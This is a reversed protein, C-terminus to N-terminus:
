RLLPHISKKWYSNLRKTPDTETWIQPPKGGLLRERAAEQKSLVKDPISKNMDPNRERKEEISIKPKSPTNRTVLAKTTDNTAQSKKYKRYSEKVNIKKMENPNYLVTEVDYADSPDVIKRNRTATKIVRQKVLTAMSGIETKIKTDLDAKAKEAEEGEDKIEAKAKELSEVKAKQAIEEDTRINTPDVHVEKPPAAQAEEPPDGFKKTWGETLDELLRSERGADHERNDADARAATTKLLVDFVGDNKTGYFHMNAKLPGDESTTLLVNLEKAGATTLNSQSNWYNAPIKGLLIKATKTAIDHEDQVQIAKIQGKTPPKHDIKPPM